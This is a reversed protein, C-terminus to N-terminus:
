LFPISKHLYNQYSSTIKSGMKALGQMSGSVIHNLHEAAGHLRCFVQSRKQIRLRERVHRLHTIIGIHIDERHLITCQLLKDRLETPAFLLHEQMRSTGHRHRNEPSLRQMIAHKIRHLCERLLALHIEADNRTKYLCIILKRQLLYLAQSALYAMPHILKGAFIPFIQMERRDEGAIEGVMAVGCALFKQLLM